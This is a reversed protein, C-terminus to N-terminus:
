STQRCITGCQRGLRNANDADDYGIESLLDAAHEKFKTLVLPTRGNELCISVDAVIQKNRIESERALKYADNIKITEGDPHVLRTFRPYVFHEIGQEKARDKATYRYRIPGFQMFIKAEQGDDRKPTATLGYVYKANVENLVEEATQSAGHHCEDM